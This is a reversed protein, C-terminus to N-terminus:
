KSSRESYIPDFARTTHETVSPVPEPLGSAHMAELEKTVPGKFEKADSAKEARTRGRFLLRIFVGELVGMILLCLAAFALILGPAVHLEDSIILTLLAIAPLGFIFVAAMASVLIGSPVERAAAPREPPSLRAGCHNCYSLGRVIANGCTSCYM